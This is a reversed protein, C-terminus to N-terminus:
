QSRPPFIDLCGARDAAELANGLIWADLEFTVHDGDRAGTEEIFEGILALTGADRRVSREEDSEPALSLTEDDRQWAAVARDALSEPIRLRVKPTQPLVEQALEHLTTADDAWRQYDDPRGVKEMM